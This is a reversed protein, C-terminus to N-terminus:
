LLFEFIKFVGLSILTVVIGAIIVGLSVYIISDRKNIGFLWAALAGTWAGTMPLPIAVFIMLAINGWLNYNGAFRNRTREFLWEFVKKLKPSRSLFSSVPGIFYIILIAPIINGIVSLIFAQWIPLNFNKLAIPIAVRLEAIPLMALLFTALQHNLNNTWSFDM